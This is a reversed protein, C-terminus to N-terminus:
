GNTSRASKASIGERRHPHSHSLCVLGAGAGHRAVAGHVVHDPLVGTCDRVSAAGANNWVGDNNSAIVRFRYDGPPLDSYFAQRRTGVDQWTTTTDKSGTVFSCKARPRRPQAGHLRNASRAAAAAPASRRNRDFPSTPRAPRRHGTRHARAAAFANFPLMVPISLVQYWETATFWIRGDASKAVQRRIAARPHRAPSVTLVILYRRRYPVIRRGQRDGAAWQGLDSASIRALGCPMQLWVAGSTMRSRGISRTAPCATETTLTALSGGKLRSLGGDTAAWLAGHRILGCIRQCPRRRATPADFAGSAITRRVHVLGGDQFGMWVGGNGPEAVIATAFGQPWPQGPFRAPRATPRDALDSGRDQGAIWIHGDRDEVIDYVASGGPCRAAPDVPRERVLRATLTSVRIRGRSDEFSPSM